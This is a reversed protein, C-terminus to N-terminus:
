ICLTESVGEPLQLLLQQALGAPVALHDVDEGQNELVIFLGHQRRHFQGQGLAHRGLGMHQVEQVPQDVALDDSPRGEISRLGQGQAALWLGIDFAVVAQPSVDGSAM